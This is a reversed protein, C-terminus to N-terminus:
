RIRRLVTEIRALLEEPNFPKALCDDAGNKLCKIKENSDEFSSIMLVPIQRFYGSAKTNKLFDLGSMEPMVMDVIIVDPRNGEQMWMLAELGNSKLTVEYYQSLFNNLLSRIILEDDAVLVKKKM